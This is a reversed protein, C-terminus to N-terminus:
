PHLEPGDNGVRSERRGTSFCRWRTTRASGARSSASPSPRRRSVSTCSPTRGVGGDGGTRRTARSSCSRAAPRSRRWSPEQDTIAVALEGTSKRRNRRWFGLRQASRCARRGSSRDGNSCCGTGSAALGEGGDAGATRLRALPPRIRRRSREREYASQSSSRSARRGAGGSGGTRSTVSLPLVTPLVLALLASRM